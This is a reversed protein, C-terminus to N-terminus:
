LPVEWDCQSTAHIWYGKGMEFNDAPGMEEWQQAEANYSEISDIHTGFELNGLGEDRGHDSVSPYGVLNWGTHLTITKELTPFDGNFVLTSGTPETVRIWIGQTQDLETLDNLSDPKDSHFHKWPDSLDSADYFNLADYEGEISALVSSILNDTQITPLSILNWGTELTVFPDNVTIECTDTGKMGDSDTVILIVTYVGPTTYVHTPTAGSGHPSGDGFDWDYSVIPGNFDLSESGDFYVPIGKIVDQDPGAVALPPDNELDQSYKITLYDLRNYPNVTGLGASWGVVYVNAENDLGIWIGADLDNQPSNYRQAWIENGSSDYRITVCDYSTGSGMSEGTVYINGLLDVAISLGRDFANEPGDYTSVWLETGNPDYAITIIDNDSFFQDSTGVIYIDGTPGLAIDHAEDMGNGPGNYRAVWLENGLDDYAITVMDDETGNGESKGTIYVNQSSDVAISHVVTFIDKVPDDYRAVWQQDGSSDYKITAFAPDPDPTDSDYFYLIDTNGTVYINGESDTTVDRPTDFYSLPGDYRAQWLLIGGPDYKLIIYDWNHEGSVYTRGAVIVNGLPDVTIIKGIDISDDGPIGEYIAEWLQGGTSDYAVTAIDTKYNGVRSSGTVYVHGSSENVAIDYVANDNNVPNGYDARWMLNGNTDYAVTAYYNLGDSKNHHRGTIYTNGSSDMVMARALYYTDVGGDYRGVWEQVVTASANEPINVFLVCSVLLVCILGSIAKRKM